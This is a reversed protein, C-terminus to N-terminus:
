NPRFKPLSRWFSLQPSYVFRETDEQVFAFRGVTGKSTFVVDGPNSIKAGVKHLDDKPFRDADDFKFGNNINGGRAFPIGLRGLESNKARYGDGIYLRGDAILDEINCQVWEHNMAVWVKVIRAAYTEIM